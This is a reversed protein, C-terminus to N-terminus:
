AAPLEMLARIAERDAASPLGWGPEYGFHERVSRSRYRDDLIELQDGTVLSPHPHGCARSLLLIEKRLTIIYNAARASKSTVDLGRTLWASQTAVGTPCHGTHCRQAQICGVALMAERGVNVMDCGLTFAFLAKEPFGLKGSGIFVVKEHVDAEVFIRYVQSMGVKFPLAVHDTFVLPAAGTGGEGGDITVFDVARGTTAILRALDRWFDLEGVASKIGVPLGTADALREAFDLLSDADRFASHRAPSICDQGIPIGRIKAIEPTIKEKPLVGGLGPKAGQSLKIELARIPASAVTELFREFSFGGEPTRCGFYGTGIQWVLDGGQRHYESVGGEGTAQLCGAIKAGQNMAAVAPGSLSGFSMGSINVVSDPRFARPRKRHGGMVKAAPVRYGPDGHAPTPYPFTAHRIILYNPSGELDNDTGFGFYNNQKKASAYVWTREDRSFPKEENNSTVIYQRLEPGVMELLYRFHGVIPFNRLIAHQRQLLDYVVVIALLAVTTLFISM